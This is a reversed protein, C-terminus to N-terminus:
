RETCTVPFNGALPVDEIGTYLPIRCLALEAHEDHLRWFLSREDGTFELIANCGPAEPDTMCNKLSQMSLDIMASLDDYQALSYSATETEMLWQEGSAYFGSAMLLGKLFSREGPELNEWALAVDCRYDPDVFYLGHAYEHYFTLLRREDSQDRSMAIVADETGAYILSQRQVLLNAGALMDFLAKESPNLSRGEARMADFFAAIDELRLDYGAGQMEVSESIHHMGAAEVFQSIRGLARQMGKTDHFDLAIIHSNEAMRVALFDADDSIPTTERVFADADMFPLKPVPSSKSEAEQIDGADRPLSEPPPFDQAEFFWSSISKIVNEICEM